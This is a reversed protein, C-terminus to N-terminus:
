ALRQLDHRIGQADLMEVLRANVPLWHVANLDGAADARNADEIIEDAIGAFASWFDGEEPCEVRLASLQAELADCRVLLDDLSAYPNANM